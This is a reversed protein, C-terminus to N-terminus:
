SSYGSMQPTGNLCEAVDEHRWARTVKTTGTISFASIDYASLPPSGFSDHQGNQQNYRWIPPSFRYRILRIDFRFYSRDKRSDQRDTRTHPSFCVPTLKACLWHAASYHSTRDSRVGVLRRNWLQGRHQQLTHIYNLLEM